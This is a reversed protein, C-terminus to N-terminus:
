RISVLSSISEGIHRVCESDGTEEDTTPLVRHTLGDLSRQTGRLVQLARLGARAISV